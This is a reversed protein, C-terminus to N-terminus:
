SLHMAPLSLLKFLGLLCTACAIGNLAMRVRFRTFTQSIGGLFMALALIVTAQVFFDSVANAHQGEEFMKDARANTARAEAEHAPVYDRTAFPTSPASPNHRPDSALWADFARTFEPRFRARYFAQLKDEGQAYANLWQSFVFLDAAKTQGSETTFVGAEVRAASARTYFAAQEGDWLTAQYSAWSTLLAAVSLVIAAFIEAIASRQSQPDKPSDKSDTVVRDKRRHVRRGM